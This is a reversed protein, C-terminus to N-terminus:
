LCRFNQIFFAEFDATGNMTGNFDATNKSVEDDDATVTARTAEYAGSVTSFVLHGAYDMCRKLGLKEGYGVSWTAQFTTDECNAPFAISSITKFAKAGTTAGSANEAFAFAETIAKNQIDTGTVTISCAAVHATSGGPTIVLNRAVDPQAVFTTVTVAAASTSGANANLVQTTGAAAPNIISQREMIVQTPLRLDQFPRTLNLAQADIAFLASLAAMSVFIFNKM